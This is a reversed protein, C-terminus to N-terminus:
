GEASGEEVARRDAEVWLSAVAGVLYSFVVLSYAVLALEILRGWTSVMGLGADGSLVAVATWYLADGFSHVPSEPHASEALFLLGGATFAVLVSIIALMGLRRRHLREIFESAGRSSYVLVQVARVARFIRLPPLAVAIADLWHERLYDSRDPSLWLRVGFEVAFVGWLLLGVVELYLDWPPAPEHTADVLLVVLLAIAALMLPVEFWRDVRDRLEERRAERPSQPM